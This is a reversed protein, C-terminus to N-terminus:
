ASSHTSWTQFSRASGGDNASRNGSAVCISRSSTAYDLAVGYVGGGIIILDYQERVAENLDRKIVTMGELAKEL